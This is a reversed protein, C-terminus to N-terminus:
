LKDLILYNSNIILLALPIEEIEKQEVGADEFAEVLISFPTMRQRRM